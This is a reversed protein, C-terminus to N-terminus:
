KLSLIRIKSFPSSRPVPEEEVPQFIGGVVLNPEFKDQDQHQPAPNPWLDWEVGQASDVNHGFGNASPTLHGRDLSGLDLSSFTKLTSIM